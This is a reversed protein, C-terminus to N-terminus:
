EFSVNEFIIKSAKWGWHTDDAYFIDKEGKRLEEALIAKTDIFRYRKPLTRLEEFFISRPYPNNVIYDSYLNYKDVCPMFVLTIGKAALKEAVKNVNDNLSRITEVTPPRKYRLFLLTDSNPVSFLENKLKRMYVGSFAHDSFWYVMNYVLFKVNGNNIFTLPPRAAEYDMQKYTAFRERDISFNPDMGAFESGLKEDVGILVFKPKIRDFFGNNCFISVTTLPDLEKHRPINLVEFNNITAIYDQYFYNRGGAGGNSFSDGITLVDIRRGDYEKLTIHRKALDVKNKRYDKSAYIYGMRALDGGQYVTNSLLDKTRLEWVLYNGGLFLCLLGLFCYTYRKFGM